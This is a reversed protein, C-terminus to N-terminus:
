KSDKLIAKYKEAIIKVRYKREFALRSNRGMEKRLLEDDKLKLIATILGNVDDPKVIFGCKEEEVVLAIESEQPVLAIVPIGVALIGYIKSPVAIGELGAKLSVIAVHCANLSNNFDKNAQFPFMIVNKLSEPLFHNMLENRRIGNGVFMFLVGEINRNVAYGLPAMENWVGMNGSYQVIFKEELSNCKVFENESFVVPHLLEEDQWLPIYEIRMSNDSFTSKILDRMDRGIVIVKECKKLASEFFLKWLIILLNNASIEGLRTLGLPFLDLLVYVFRFHKILCVYSLLIGISPPTTHTLVTRKGKLFLLKFVASTIFTLTNLIRGVFNTKPFNTSLLYKIQINKYILEKSQRTFLTYSPQACWVEVDIKDDALRACLLTFLNSTSVEDPYFVQSILLLKNM